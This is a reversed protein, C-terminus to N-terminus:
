LTGLPRPPPTGKFDEDSTSWSIPLEWGPVCIDQQTWRYTEDLWNQGPETVALQVLVRCMERHDRHRLDLSYLREVRLPNHMNLWGIRHVVESQEAPELLRVLKGYNEVDVVRAHLFCAAHARLFDSAPLFAVLRIVQDVTLWKDMTAVRLFASKFYMLGWCALPLCAADADLRRTVVEYESLSEYVEGDSESASLPGRALLSARQKKSLAERSLRLASAPRLASKPRQATPGAKAGKGRAKAAPPAAESLGLAKATDRPKEPGLWNTAFHASSRLTRWCLVTDKKLIWGPPAPVAFGLKLAPSERKAAALIRQALTAPGAAVEDGEDGGRFSDSAGELRDALVAAEYEALARAAAKTSASRSPTWFTCSPRKQAAQKYTAEVLALDTLKLKALLSLFRKESLAVDSRRPLRTSVYDFTVRGKQPVNFFWQLSLECARLDVFENRYNAWNGHQSTDGRGASRSSAVEATHREALKLLARRDRPSHLELSYHGTCNGACADFLAPGMSERLQVIQVVDLNASLIRAADAVSIMVPLLKALVAPTQMGLKGRELLAQAQVDSFFIDTNTVAKDFLRARESDSPALLINKILGENGADSGHLDMGPPHPEAVFDVLLLGSSPCRWAQGTRSDVLTGLASDPSWRLFHGLAWQVFERREITGSNDVDYTAVVRHAVEPTTRADGLLLLGRLMERVDIAGSANVDIFQFLALFIGSLTQLVDVAGAAV